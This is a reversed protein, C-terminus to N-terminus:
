SAKDPFNLTAFKGFYKRAAADYELAAEKKNKFYRLYRVKNNVTIQAKWTKDRKFLSVGYFGSTNNKNLKTRNRLNEAHTALRINKWRNDDVKGNVHDVEFEPWEGIMYLWALRHSYYAKDDISIKIYGTSSDKWGAIKGKTRVTATNQLRIFIGTRPNYHLIRKLVKQCIPHIYLNM